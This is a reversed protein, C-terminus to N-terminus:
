EESPAYAPIPRPTQRFWYEAVNWCAWAIGAAAIGDVWYHWGFYASGIFIIIWFAVAPQLWKTGRAALVYISAAGLHMSPMASIGGGKVAVPLNIAEVLYDQTLRTTSDDALMADLAARLPTFDAALAPDHLHAFVPGAASMAYALFWGGLLWTLLMATYIIGVRRPAAYLAVNAKFLLLGAGWTTAYLMEWVRVNGTGLWHHAIRWADDGLLMRDAAAWFGEWRYGVLDPIASKATTFGVMFLPFVLVPLILMPARRRVDDWVTACPRDALRAALRAFAVFVYFLVSLVTFSAASVIYPAFLGRSDIGAMRGATFGVVLMVAAFLAPLMLALREGAVTESPSIPLFAFRSAM